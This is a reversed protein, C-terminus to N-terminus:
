PRKKGALIMSSAPIDLKAWDVSGYGRLEDLVSNVTDIISSFDSDVEFTAEIVLKAQPKAEEKAMQKEKKYGICPEALKGWGFGTKVNECHICRATAEGTFVAVIEHTWHCEDIYSM